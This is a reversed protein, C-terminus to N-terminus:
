RIEMGPEAGDDPSLLFIDRGGPGAALVMGESVGFKMKRPALNAVLATLRGDLEGPSYKERIGAFVTRPQGEGADLTLRLLRDAGEVEEAKLIRAVRLRIKLFDDINILDGDDENEEKMPAETAQQSTTASASAELMAQVQKEDVRQILPKFKRLPHDLLLQRHDDWELPDVQLFAEANRALEPLVPKIYIILLRFVNIATACIALVREASDPDKALKWPEQENIYQNAQDALAMIERMARAYEREEYLEAIREARQQTARVLEENDLSAPLTGGLKRVFNATRSPINVLKGVLDSNVRQIFDELNLDLDEVGSGLRAAFYYRLYEPQLHELYTRAMIFTGRSKSMKAGNVTVFGHCFLATPQRFGAGELMAPWFLGHFNVIDKGIFHYLEAHSGVRWYEEFDLGARDCYNRFSAMYGVPADMWVYFYKGPWGPIEFGFYPAERSIDWPQLGEDLWERLKNAVSEQLAGSDLWERLMSEFRPLDFFLQTTEKEVPTAGSIASYPAKLEAPTYTAGCAECNDGYQGPAQCRPCTGCVFRDALFMGREPDYLQKITKQTIFGGDLNRTYIEEALQRNEESHTTYYNDFEILFDSFDREHEAKVQEILAEPSLGREEAKLMIATGHADDACVYTCDRGRLKHFRVWIDTQIYELLHGLHIPGNAYPLASTVLIKRPTESM